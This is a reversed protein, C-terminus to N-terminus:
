SLLGGVSGGDRTTPEGAFRLDLVVGKIKSKNTVPCTRRLGRATKDALHGEVKSIRFYPAYSIM